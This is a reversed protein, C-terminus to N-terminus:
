IQHFQSKRFAHLRLGQTLNLSRTHINFDYLDASHHSRNGQGTESRYSYSKNFFELRAYLEIHRYLKINKLIVLPTNGITDKIIM